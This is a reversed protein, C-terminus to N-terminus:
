GKATQISKHARDALPLEFGFTSGTGPQSQVFVRGQHFKEVIQRVLNLGLGTGQAFNKTSHARYFKEFVHELEEACLGLGNDTVKVSVTQVVEDTEVEITVKGNEHSYKIANSLLNMLVQLILDADAFAIDCSASTELVISINKERAQTALMNISKQCVDELSIPVKRIPMLNSELKTISLIDEILGNLRDSQNQIISCFQTITDTDAAEGDVLMEAYARISALPTKLEHSVHSVFDTKMQAIEKEETIDHLVTVLGCFRELDDNIGSIICDFTTNKDRATITIQENMHHERTERTERILRILEPNKIIKDVAQPRDPIIDFHLLQRAAKNAMVVRDLSDTVIVADRISYIVAEIDAKKRELVKLQFDRYNLDKDFTEIQQYLGATYENIANCLGKLLPFSSQVCQRTKQSLFGILRDLERVTILHFVTLGLLISLTMSDLLFSEYLRENSVASVRGIVTLLVAALLVVHLIYKYARVSERLKDYHDCKSVPCM